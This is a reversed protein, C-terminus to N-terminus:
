TSFVNRFSRAAHGFSLESCDEAVYVANGAFQRAALPRILLKKVLEAALAVFRSESGQHLSM